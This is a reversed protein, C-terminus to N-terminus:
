KGKIAIWIDGIRYADFSGHNATGVSRPRTFEHYTSFEDRFSSIHTTAGSDLIWDTHCNKPVEGRTVAMWAVTEEAPNDAIIEEITAGSDFAAIKADGASPQKGVSKENRKGGKGGGKGGNLNKPGKGELGGGKAWCREITHGKKLCNPNTCQLNPYRLKSSNNSTPKNSIAGMPQNAHPGLLITGFQSTILAQLNAIAQPNQLNAALAQANGSNAFTISTRRAQEEALIREKVRKTTPATARLIQALGDWSPPLSRIIRMAHSTDSITEGMAALQERLIMLKNLHDRMSTGDIYTLHDYVEHINAMRDLNASEFEDKLSQWAEKASTTGYVLPQTEPSLNQIIQARASVDKDRWLSWDATSKDKPETEIGDTIGWLGREELATIQEFKHTFWNEDTLHTINRFKHTDWKHPTTPIAASTGPQTTTTPVNATTTPPPAGRTPQLGSM